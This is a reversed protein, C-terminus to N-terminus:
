GTAFMYHEFFFSDIKAQAAAWFIPDFSITELHSEGSELYVFFDCWELGTVALQCMVQFYYEHSRKLRTVSPQKKNKLYIVDNIHINQPCKIELLGFPPDRDPCYVKRDPSAAIWPSFPSIVLGSPYLNVAQTM